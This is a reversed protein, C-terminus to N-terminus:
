VELHLPTAGDELTLETSGDEITLAEGPEPEPAAGGASRRHALGLNLALGLM